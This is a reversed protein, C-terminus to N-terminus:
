LFPLASQLQAHQEVWRKLWVGGNEDKKLVVAIWVTLGLALMVGASIVYFV